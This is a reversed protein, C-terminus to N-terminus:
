SGGGDGVGTLRLVRRVGEKIGKKRGISKELPGAKPPWEGDDKWGQVLAHVLIQLNIPVSPTRSQLIIKSYIEPYTNPTIKRRIPHNKLIPPALPLLLTPFTLTTPTLDPSTALSSTETASSLQATTSSTSSRPSSSTTTTTASSSSSALSEEELVRKEGVTATTRACCWVDRRRMWHELGDNWTREEEVKEWRRRKRRERREQLETGVSDPKDFKWEASGDGEDESASSSYSRERWEVPDFGLVVERDDSCRFGAVTHNNKKKGSSTWAPLPDYEWDTRIREKLQKRAERVEAQSQHHHPLLTM